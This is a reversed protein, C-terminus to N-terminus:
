QFDGMGPNVLIGGTGGGVAPAKFSAIVGSNPNAGGGTLTTSYSGVTPAVRWAVAMAVTAGGSGQVQIAFNNTPASFTDSAGEGILALILENTSTTTITGSPYTLASGGSATATQDLTATTAPGVFEGATAVWRPTGTVTAAIATIGGANAEKYFLALANGLTGNYATSWGAPATITGSNALVALWLFNGATSAAPLVATPTGTTGTAMPASQVLAFPSPDGDAHRVAGADPYSTAITGAIAHAISRCSAGAGTAANPTFDLAGPNALPNATLAVFGVNATPAVAVNGSANGYGRCNVMRTTAAANFGFGGSNVSVCMDLTSSGIASFGDSATGYSTCKSLFVTTTGCNFGAVSGGYSICDFAAVANNCHFNGNATTDHGVCRLAVVGAANLLFPRDGGSGECDVLFSGAGAVSFGTNNCLTAKCYDYTASGTNAFGQVATLGDGSVRGVEINTVQVTGGNASFITMTSSTAKFFPRGARDGPYSSFGEWRQGAATTVRGGDVNNTSTFNYTASKVHVTNSGIAVSGALGPSSLAGGLNGTGGTSAATGLTKDVTATTGTVSVVQVRQVTFGTGSAVNIANGIVHPGVPNAASTYQTTTGGIVLDTYAIGAATGRSYDISWKGSTPSAVTACGAVTNLVTAGNYLLVSGISADLTAANSAVSAIPYWGPIWNTGSQVFVYKGVDRAIFNYTASTVVPSATNAATAALNTSMNANAPDFGGGNASSGASDVRWIESAPFAM